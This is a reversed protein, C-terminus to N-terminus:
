LVTCSTGPRYQFTGLDIMSYELVAYLTGPRYQSAELDMMYCGLDITSCGLVTHITYWTWLTIIGHRYQSAGLDTM